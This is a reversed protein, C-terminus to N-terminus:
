VEWEARFICFLCGSFLLFWGCKKWFSFSSCFFNSDSNECFYAGSFVSYALCVRCLQHVSEPTGQNHPQGLVRPGRVEVIRRMLGTGVTTRGTANGDTPSATVMRVGFSSTAPATQPKQPTKQPSWGRWWDSGRCWHSCPAGVRHMRRWVWTGPCGASGVCLSILCSWAGLPCCFICRRGLCFGM